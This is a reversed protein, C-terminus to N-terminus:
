EGGERFKKLEERVRINYEKISEGERRKMIENRKKMLEVTNNGGYKEELDGIRECTEQISSISDDREMKKIKEMMERDMMNYKGALANYEYVLGITRMSLMQDDSTVIASDYLQMELDKLARALGRASEYDAQSFKLVNGPHNHIVMVHTANSLLAAQVVERHNSETMGGNGYSAVFYNIAVLGEDINIAVLCERSYDKIMNRVFEIAEEISPLNEFTWDDVKNDSIMIHAEKFEKLNNM